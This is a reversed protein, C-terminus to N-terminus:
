MTWNQVMVVYDLSNVIGDHNLDYSSYNQNWKSILLSLDL